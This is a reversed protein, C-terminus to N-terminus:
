DMDNWGDITCPHGCGDDWGDTIPDKGEDLLNICAQMDDISSPSIFGLYRDGDYVAFGHLDFDLEKEYVEIGNEFKWNKM